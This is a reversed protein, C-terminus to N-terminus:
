KFFLRTMQRSMGSSVAFPASGTKVGLREGIDGLLKETMNYIPAYRACRRRREIRSM